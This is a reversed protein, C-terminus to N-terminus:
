FFFIIQLLYSGFLFPEEKDLSALRLRQRNYLSLKRSLQGEFQLAETRVSPKHKVNPIKMHNESKLTFHASLCSLARGLDDEAILTYDTQYTSIYFISIGASALPEAVSHVIGISATIELVYYKKPSLKM